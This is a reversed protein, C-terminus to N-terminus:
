PGAKHGDACVTLCAPSQAQSQVVSPLRFARHHGHTRVKFFKVKRKNFDMVLRKYTSTIADSPGCWASFLEVVHLFDKEAAEGSITAWMEETEILTAIMTDDVVLNKKSM